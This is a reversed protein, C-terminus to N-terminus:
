ASAGDLGLSPLVEEIRARDAELWPPLRLASGLEEVSEDITFGPPDTAIEFLVGGPERFYISHFYCRDLVPTVHLGRGSLRERWERQAGDDAARWAVHHVTGAAIHGFGTDPAAVLDVRGGVPGDGAGLRIRSGARELERYGMGDTLLELSPGADRVTLEISDFGRVARDTPVPSASWAAADGAWEREVLELRLGDPDLLGLVPEGFREGPDEVPLGAGTLRTHWWSLSGAPVAFATTTAQGAGRSGRRALPWPFFTLITGPRGEEDGFYLHHTGPDDFNVTRKVLRLGLVRTYFDVNAVPDSALATVHHIGRLPTATM